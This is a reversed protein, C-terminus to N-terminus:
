VSTLTFVIQARLTLEVILFHPLTLLGTKNRKTAPLGRAARATADMM